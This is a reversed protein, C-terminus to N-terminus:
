VFDVISDVNLVHSAILSYLKVEQYRDPTLGVTSYTIAEKPSSIDICYWLGCQDRRVGWHTHSTPKTGSFWLFGESELYELLEMAEDETNCYVCFDRDPM